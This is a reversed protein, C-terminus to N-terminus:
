RLAAGSRLTAGMVHATGDEAATWERVCMGRQLAGLIAQDGHTRHPQAHMITQGQGHRWGTSGAICTASCPSATCEGGGCHCSIPCAHGALTSGAPSRLPRRRQTHSGLWSRCPPPCRRPASLPHQAGPTSPNSLATCGAVHCASGPGILTSHRGPWAHPLIPLRQSHGLRMCLFRYPQVHQHAVARAKGGQRCGGRFLPHVTALPRGQSRQKACGRLYIFAHVAAIHMITNHCGALMLNFWLLSGICRCSM